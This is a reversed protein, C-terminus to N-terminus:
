PIKRLGAQHARFIHPNRQREHFAALDAGTDSVFGVRGYRLFDLDRTHKRSVAIRWDTIRDRRYGLVIRRAARSKRLNRFARLRNLDVLLEAETNALLLM